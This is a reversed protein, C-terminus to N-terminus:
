CLETLILGIQSLILCSLAVVKGWWKIGNTRGWPGLRLGLIGSLALFLGLARKPFERCERLLVELVLSPYVLAENKTKRELACCRRMEAGIVAALLPLCSQPRAM